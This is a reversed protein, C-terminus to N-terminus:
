TDKIFEITGPYSDLKPDNLTEKWWKEFEKECITKTM